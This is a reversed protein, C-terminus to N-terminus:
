WPKVRNFMTSLGGGQPMPGSEPPIANPRRISAIGGGAYNQKPLAYGFHMRMDEMPSSPARKVGFFDEGGKEMRKIQEKYGYVPHEMMLEQPTFGKLSDTKEGWGLKEFGERMGLGFFGWPVGEDAKIGIMERVGRDLPGKGATKNWEEATLSEMMNELTVLGITPDRNEGEYYTEYLKDLNKESQAIKKDLMERDGYNWGEEPSMMHAPGLEGGISEHYDLAALSTDLGTLRKEEKKYKLYDMMAKIHNEPVGKKLAHMLVAKEDTDFDVIGFTAMEVGKGLGKFFSQGKTWNNLMDVFGFVLEGKIWPLAKKMGPSKMIENIPIGSYLAVSAQKALKPNQKTFKRFKNFETPGWKKMETEAQSIITKIDQTASVKKPGYPLGEINLRVGKTLADVAGKEINTLGGKKILNNAKNALLNLDQRLLQYNTTARTGAGYEHHIQIARKARNLGNVGDKNSIFQLLDNLQIQKADFGEPLLKALNDFQYLYKKSTEDAINWYKRTNDFDPHNVITKMNYKKGNHEIGIMANGKKISGGKETIPRYPSSEGNQAYNREMQSMMWGEPSRLDFKYKWPKAGVFYKSIKAYKPHSPPVGYKSTKGPFGIRQQGKPIIPDSQFNFKVEPFAEILEQQAYKPLNKHAKSAQFPLKYDRDVFNTVVQYIPHNSPFGYKRDPTFVAKPWIAKIKAQQIDTLPTKQTKIIFKGPTKARSVRGYVKTKDGSAVTLDKFSPSSVQKKDYFWKAAKNLETKSIKLPTKKAKIYNDLEKKNKFYRTKTTKKQEKEPHRVAESLAWEKKHAGQQVKYKKLKKDGYGQRVGEPGPQVLQGARFNLRREYRASDQSWEKLDLLQQIIDPM